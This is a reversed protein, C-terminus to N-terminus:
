SIVNRDTDTNIDQTHRDGGGLEVLQYVNIFNLQYTM